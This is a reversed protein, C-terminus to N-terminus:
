ENDREGEREETGCWIDSRHLMFVGLYGAWMYDQLRALELFPPLEANKGNLTLECNLFLMANM